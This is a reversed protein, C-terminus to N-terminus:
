APCAADMAQREGAQPGSVAPIKVFAPDGLLTNRRAFARREAEALLHISAPSRWALSDINSREHIGLILALTLGGSSVPPMSVIPHGRYTFELPTRWIAQYGALDERSIIGGSRKMASVILDAADFLM